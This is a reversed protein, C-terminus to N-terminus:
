TTIVVKITGDRTKKKETLSPNHNPRLGLLKHFSTFTNTCTQENGKKPLISIPIMLFCIKLVKVHCQHCWTVNGKKTIVCSPYWKSAFKSYKWMTCTVPDGTPMMLLQRKHLCSIHTDNLLLNQTSESPLSPMMDWQRKPFYIVHTDNSLKKRLVKPHHHHCSAENGKKAPIKLFCKGFYRMTQLSCVIFPQPLHILSPHLTVCEWAGLVQLEWVKLRNNNPSRGNCLGLDWLPLSLHLCFM